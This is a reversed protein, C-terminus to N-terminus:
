GIPCCGGHPLGQARTTRTSHHDGERHQRELNTGRPPEHMIGEGRSSDLSRRQDPPGRLLHLRRAMREEGSHHSALIDCSLACALLNAVRDINRAKLVRFVSSSLPWRCRSAPRCLLDGRRVPLRRHEGRSAFLIARPRVFTVNSQMEMRGARVVSRKLAALRWIGRDVSRQYACRLREVMRVNSSTVVLRRKGGPKYPTDWRNDM